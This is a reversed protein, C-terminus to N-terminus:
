LRLAEVMYRIDFGNEAVRKMEIVFIISNGSSNILVKKINYSIIRQRVVSPTGITYNRAQGDLSRAEMNIYFSSRVNQGNGSISPVLQARYSKGSIFDRFNITEGREPPNEDRSIYLPLGQNQFNIGYRSTLNSNSALLQYLIGSGDQGAKISADQTYSVRGNQVFNNNNVDVVFLEAWPKLSPSLVGYQGFMYTRGDASFGLDVFSATDGAWLASACTLLIILITLVPKKLM